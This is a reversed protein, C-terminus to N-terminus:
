HRLKNQAGWGTRRTKAGPNRKWFLLRLMEFVIYDSLVNNTYNIILQDYSDPLSQLLIEARELEAIKHGLSNLRSFLSNLTNIHETVSTTEAMRLTYLRRKLFIKNHLSKAQYLKTLADWIEKTSKKEEVGSLVSDSLALHMNAVAMADMEKWKDDTVGAPRGEIAALCNDKMLIARMKLKWMSFNSGNFKEIEYKAAM